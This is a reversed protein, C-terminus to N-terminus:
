LASPDARRAEQKERAPDRGLAAERLKKTALTRADALRLTPFSGITMIEFHHDAM